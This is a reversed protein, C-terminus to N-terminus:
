VPGNLLAALASESAPQVIFTAGTASVIRVTTGRPIASGNESRAPAAARTGGALFTIEGVGGAPIGVTLEGLRGAAERRRLKSDTEGLQLVRVTIWSVGVGLAAAGVLSLPVHILAADIGLGGVLGYGTAGFGTLYGAIATPSFLPLSLGGTPDADAFAEGSGGGDVGFDSGVHVEGHSADPTSAQGAILGLVIWGVGVIGCLLYLSLM